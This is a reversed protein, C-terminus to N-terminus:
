YRDLHATRERAEDSRSAHSSQVEIWVDTVDPIIKKLLKEMQSNASEIQDSEIGSAYDISLLVRLEKPGIYETVLKNIHNIKPFDKVTKIILERTSPDAAEGLIMSVCEIFLFIAVVALLLAIGMTAYADWIANGTLYSTSLGIFAILLGIIAATDELLVVLVAPDKLRTLGKFLNINPLAVRFASYAIYWTKSEILISIFLIGLAISVYFSDGVEGPSVIKHFAAFGTYIAGLGFLILAVFFSCVYMVRGYGSPRRITPPKAAIKLGILLVIQNTTDIISHVGEGFMAASGTLADGIFKAIAIIFNAIAAALIVKKSSHDHQINTM